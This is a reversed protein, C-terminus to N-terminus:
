SVNPKVDVLEAGPFLESLHQFEPTAKAQELLEAHERSKQQNLTEGEPADARSAVGTFEVNWENKSRRLIDRLKQQLDRPDFLGAQLKLQVLPPAYHQCLAQQSL